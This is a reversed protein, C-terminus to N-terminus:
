IGAWGRGGSCLVPSLTVHCSTGSVSGLAGGRPRLRQRALGAWAPRAGLGKIPWLSVAGSGLRPSQAGAWGTGRVGGHGREAQKPASLGM